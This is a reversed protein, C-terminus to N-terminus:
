RAANPVSLDRTRIGGERSLKRLDDPTQQRRSKRRSPDHGRNARPEGVVRLTRPMFREGLKDAAQQDGEDTAQAYIALTLRPDSHGLRTQATKVDVKDLVMATANARRLDHFGLGDLGAAEIAPQWIRRRWNSYALPGVGDPGPFLFADADAATLGRTAMHASLLDALQAPITLTRSGADSKPAAVITTGGAGRAVQEEVNVTRRLVDVHRVRLGAVEGWRLGAVVGVWVMPAYDSRMADALTVLEDPTPVRRKTARRKPLNIDRCPSRGIWDSAVAYNFVARLTGYTRVVTRPQMQTTWENVLKQVEPKTISGIRRHGLVPVIHKRLVSVDRSISTAQKAPNSALWEDAVTKVTRNAAAPDLYTGRAVAAVQTAEWATAEKKTRFRRSVERGDPGRFRVEYVVGKRTQQQKISV